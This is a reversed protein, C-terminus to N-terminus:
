EFLFQLSCRHAASETCSLDRAEVTIEPGGFIIRAQICRDQGQGALEVFVHGLLEVGEETVYQIEERDTGYILIDAGTQDPRSPRFTFTKVTGIEVEEGKVIIPDFIDVAKDVGNVTRMKRYSHIESNFTRQCKIGYTRRSIRTTISLPDHGFLVAGKIVSLGAEHPILVKARQRFASLMAQQLVPSESFGGVMLIYEIKELKINKLMQDVHSIIGDICPQFLEKMKECSIRLMGNNVSVGSVNSTKLADKLKNGTFEQYKSALQYTLQINTTESQDPRFGKKRQEFSSMLQLWVAPCDAKCLSIFDKTFVDNLLKVFTDDVKTGGFAGGSARELERVHGDELLEHATCDLTGGGADIVIYKAGPQMTSASTTTNLFNDVSLSRCWVSAAEPELAIILQNSDVTPMIGAEFAAERMFQKSADSWIAPVTIVWRIRRTNPCSKLQKTVVELLHNKLYELAMAFIQIAPRFHGNSATINTAKNLKKIRHLVMKFKSFFSYERDEGDALGVFFNEAEYGFHKFSGDKDTLVCTPTKYGQIGLESGWHKYVIIDHLSSRLSFAYGSFTTGFDIAAVMLYQDDAHRDLSPDYVESAM